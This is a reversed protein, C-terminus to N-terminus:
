FRVFFTEAVCWYAQGFDTIENTINQKHSSSSQTSQVQEITWHKSPKDNLCKDKASLWTLLDPQTQLQKLSMYWVISKMWSVTCNWHSDSMSLSIVKADGYLCSMMNLEGKNEKKSYIQWIIQLYKECVNTFCHSSSYDSILANWSQFRAIYRIMIGEVSTFRHVLLISLKYVLTMYTNIGFPQLVLLLYMFVCKFM